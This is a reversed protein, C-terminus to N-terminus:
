EPFISDNTEYLNINFHILFCLAIFVHLLCGSLEESLQLLAVFLSHRQPLLESLDCHVLVLADVLDWRCVTM